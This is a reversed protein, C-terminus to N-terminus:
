LEAAQSFEPYCECVLEMAQKMNKKAAESNKENKYLNGEMINDITWRYMLKRTLKSQDGQVFRRWVVAYAMEDVDIFHELRVTIRRKEDVVIKM